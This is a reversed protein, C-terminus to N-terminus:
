KCWAEDIEGFAIPLHEIIDRALMSTKGYKKAAYDGALGHAYCAIKFMEFSNERALLAAVIGTLVDGSGATAMGSNGTPNVFAETRNAVISDKGKLILNVDYSDLYNKVSGIRDYEIENLTYNSLRSFEMAHPTLYLNERMLEPYLALINIADADLVVPGEFNNLVIEVIDRAYESIGLGPGIAVVTKNQIVNLLEERNFRGFEGYGHDHISLVIQETTKMEVIDSLSDPVLVYVLGAGSRLAAESSLVVSGTMGKSGGIILVKGFDYKNSNEDREPLLQEIFGMDEFENLNCVATAYDGDHSINIDIQTVAKEDMIKGVKSSEINVYPANNENHLIEIDVFSLDKGIGVQFAKAVAEKAAILGAISEHRFHREELYDQENKTFFRDIFNERQLLKEVRKVNVIDIGIM